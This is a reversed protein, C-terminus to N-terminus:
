YSGSDCKLVTLGTVGTANIAELYTDKGKRSLKRSPFKPHNHAGTLHIIARRDSRDVPSFIRITSKCKRHVIRGQIVENNENVHTYAPDPHATSAVNM